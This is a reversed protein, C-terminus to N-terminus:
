SKQPFLCRIPGNAAGLGYRHPQPARGGRDSHNAGRWGSQLVEFFETNLSQETAPGVRSPAPQCRGLRARERKSQITVGLGGQNPQPNTNCGAREYTSLPATVPTYRPCEQRRTASSELGAQHACSRPSQFTVSGAPQFAQAVSLPERQPRLVRGDPGPDTIKASIGVASVQESERASLILTRSVPAHFPAIM